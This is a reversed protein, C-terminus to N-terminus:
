KRLGSVKVDFVDLIDLVLKDLRERSFEVFEYDGQLGGISSVGEEKLLVLRKSRGLAYAKEDIVWPSTTWEAKKALKDRRGFIGVFVHQAEILKKQKLVSTDPESQAVAQTAVIFLLILLKCFPKM